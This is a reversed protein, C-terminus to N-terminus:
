INLTINLFRCLLVPLLIGTSIFLEIDMVNLDKVFLMGSFIGGLASQHTVRTEIVEINLFTCDLPFAHEM